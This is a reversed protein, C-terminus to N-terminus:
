EILEFLKRNMFVPSFVIVFFLIHFYSSFEPFLSSLMSDAVFGIAVSVLFLRKTGKIIKLKHGCNKCKTVTFLTRALNIVGLIGIADEHCNPCSFSNESAMNVTGSLQPIRNTKM